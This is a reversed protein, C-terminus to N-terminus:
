MCLQYGCQFSTATTLFLNIWGDMMVMLFASHLSCFISTFERNVTLSILQTEAVGNVEVRVTYNGTDTARLNQFSLRSMNISVNTVSIRMPDPIPQEDQRELSITPRTSADFTIVIVFTDTENVTSSTGNLEIYDIGVAFLFIPSWMCACVCVCVCLYLPRCRLFVCLLYMNVFVWLVCPSDHMWLFQRNMDTSSAASTPCLHWGTAWKAASNVYGTLCFHLTWGQLTYFVEGELFNVCADGVVYIGKHM